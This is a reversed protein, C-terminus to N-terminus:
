FVYHRLRKYLLMTLVSVACGKLLNMPVVAFLVLSAVSHVSPNIKSGMAVITDLPIGYLKAFAPLLYLLNFLSGFVTMCLTGTICAIMARKKTKRALYVLGAPLIFSCGVTFNALEGVFATTTSKFLVKLLIKVFETMVGSVPGFAFTIILVPLESFDLKYFSPAFPLPIEFMMLITSVASFLGIMTVKRTSLVRERSGTKRNLAKEALFAVLFIALVILLFEAVFVANQLLRNEIGNSNGNKM